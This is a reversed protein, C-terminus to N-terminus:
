YSENHRRYKNRGFKGKELPTEAKLVPNGEYKKPLHFERVFDSGDAILFDDVFLQRGVSINIVPPKKELYPVPMVRYGDPYFEGNPDEYRPPWKRPIVIGNYLTEGSREVEPPNLGALLIWPKPSKFSEGAKVRKKFVGVADRDLDTILKFPAIEKVREFGLKELEKSVDLPPIVHAVALVEGDSLFEYDLSEQVPLEYYKLGLLINPLNKVRGADKAWTGYQWGRNSFLFNHARITTESRSFQGIPADPYQKVRFEAGSIAPKEVPIGFGVYSFVMCFIFFVRGM